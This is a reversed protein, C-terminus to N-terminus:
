KDYLLITLLIVPLHKQNVFLKPVFLNLIVIETGYKIM